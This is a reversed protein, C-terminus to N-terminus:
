FPNNQPLYLCPFTFVMGNETVNQAVLSILVTPNSKFINNQMEVQM